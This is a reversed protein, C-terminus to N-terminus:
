QAGSGRYLIVYYYDAAAYIAIDIEQIWQLLVVIDFLSSIFFASEFFICLLVVIM